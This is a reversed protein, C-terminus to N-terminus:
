IAEPDELCESGLIVANPTNDRIVDAVLEWPLKPSREFRRGVPGAASRLFREIPLTSTAESGDIVSLAGAASARHLLSYNMSGFPSLVIIPSISM